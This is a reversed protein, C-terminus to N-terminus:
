KSGKLTIKVLSADNISKYGKKWIVEAKVSKDSAQLLPLYQSPSTIIVPIKKGSSSIFKGNVDHIEKGSELTIRRFSVELKGSTIIHEGKQEEANSSFVLIFIFLSIRLCNM